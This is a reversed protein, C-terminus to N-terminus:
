IIHLVGIYQTGDENTVIVHYDGTEYGSMDYIITTGEDISVTESMMVNGDKEIRIESCDSAYRFSLTLTNDEIDYLSIIQNCLAPSRHEKSIVDPEKYVHQIRFYSAQFSASGAWVHINSIFSVVFIAVIKIISKKMKYTKKAFIITCCCKVLTYLLSQQLM